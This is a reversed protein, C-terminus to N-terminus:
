SGHEEHWQRAFAQRAQEVWYTEAPAVHPSPNADSRGDDATRLTQSSQAAISPHIETM